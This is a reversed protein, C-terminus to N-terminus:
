PPSSEFNPQKLARNKVNSYHISKLIDGFLTDAAEHAEGILEAEVTLASQKGIWMQGIFINPTRGVMGSGAVGAQKYDAEERYSLDYENVVSKKTMARLTTKMVEEGYQDYVGEDIPNCIVRFNVTASLEYVQTYSVLDYCRKRSDDECRQTKYPADPLTISFECFDPSYSVSIDNESIEVPANEATNTDQAISSPAIILVCAFLMSFFLARQARQLKIM